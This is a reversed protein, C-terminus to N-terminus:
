TSIKQLLTLTHVNGNLKVARQQLDECLMISFIEIGNM